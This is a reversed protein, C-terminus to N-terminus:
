RSTSASGRTSSAPGPQRLLERDADQRDAQLLRVDYGSPDTEDEAAAALVDGKCVNNCSCVVAEDPMGAVGPASGARAMPLILEEPNDPLAIGSAVMPRLVGYASADGVLIGGLLRTGTEDVVLKKYIGAVADAFVLELAGDTAAFADGFSAVDVGLLKLKTSMDAGEFTGPGDLLADAVVEAMSYGPAVLGYMRGGPAACEGIAFVHPDSTRCQEDVLVGGRAALDLGADRALQDRPRIGASFVVIEADISDEGVEVSEVRGDGTIAGTAAGAHVTVGLKEIHRVLTTGGADDLQVPMLRPAMEVVHTELGLQVLANAAELGLLGGGIM